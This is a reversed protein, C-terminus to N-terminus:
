RVLLQGTIARLGAKSADVIRVEGCGADRAGQAMWEEMGAFGACGMIIAEAGNLAVKGATEKVLREVRAQDGDRLELVGLGSTICGAWRDSGSAGLYASVGKHLLPKWGSGTSAVGFKRSTILCENVAAEFIGM